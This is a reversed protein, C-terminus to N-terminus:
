KAYRHRKETYSYSDESYEQTKMKRNESYKDKRKKSKDYVSKNSGWENSYDEEQRFKGIRKSM